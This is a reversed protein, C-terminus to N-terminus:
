PDGVVFLMGEVRHIVSNLDHIVIPSARLATLAREATKAAELLKRIERVTDRPDPRAFNM